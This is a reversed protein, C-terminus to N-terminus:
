GFKREIWRALRGLGLARLWDAWWVFRLARALRRDREAEFKAVAAKEEADVFREFDNQPTVESTVIRPKWVGM